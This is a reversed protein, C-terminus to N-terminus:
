GVAEKALSPALAGILAGPRGAAEDAVRTVPICETM